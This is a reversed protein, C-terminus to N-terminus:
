ADIQLDAETIEGSYLFDPYLFSGVQLQQMVFNMLTANSTAFLEDVTLNGFGLGSAM